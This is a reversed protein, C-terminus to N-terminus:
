RRVIALRTCVSPGLFGPTHSGTIKMTRLRLELGDDFLLSTLFQKEVAACFGGAMTPHPPREAHRRHGLRTALCPRTSIAASHCTPLDSTRRTSDLVSPRCRGSGRQEQKQYRSFGLTRNRFYLMKGSSVRIARTGRMEARLPASMPAKDDVHEQDLRM